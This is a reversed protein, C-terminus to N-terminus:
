HIGQNMHEHEAAFYLVWAESFFTETEVLMALFKIPPRDSKKNEAKKKWINSKYLIISASMYKNYYLWSLADGPVLKGQIAMVCTCWPKNIRNHSVGVFTTVWAFSQSYQRTRNCTSALVIAHVRTNTQWYERTNELKASALKSECTPLADSTHVRECERKASACMRTYLFIKTSARFLKLDDMWFATPRTLWFLSKKWHPRMLLMKAWNRIHFWVSSNNSNFM